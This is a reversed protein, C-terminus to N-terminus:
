INLPFLYSILTTLCHLILTYCKFKRYNRCRWYNGNPTSKKVYFRNEYFIMPTSTKSPVIENQM